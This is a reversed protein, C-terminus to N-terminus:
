REQAAGRVAVGLRFEGDRLIAPADCPDVTGTRLLGSFSYSRGIVPGIVNLSCGREYEFNRARRQPTPSVYGVDMRSRVLTRSEGYQSHSLCSDSRTM